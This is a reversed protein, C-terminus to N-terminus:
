AIVRASKRPNGRKVDAETIMDPFLLDIWREAMAVDDNTMEPIRDRTEHPDWEGHLKLRRKVAAEVDDQGVMSDRALDGRAYGEAVADILHARTLFFEIIVKKGPRGDNLRIAKM